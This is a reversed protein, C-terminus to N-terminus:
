KTPFFIGWNDCHFLNAMEEQTFAKLVVQGYCRLVMVIM